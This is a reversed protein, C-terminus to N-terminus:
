INIHTQVSVDCHPKTKRGVCGWFSLASHKVQETSDTEVVMNRSLDFIEKM